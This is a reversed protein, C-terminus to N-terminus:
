PGVLAIAQVSAPRFRQELAKVACGLTAGSQSSDDVVVIRSGPRVQASHKVQVLSFYERVRLDIAKVAILRNQPAAALKRVAERYLALNTPRVNAEPARTRLVASVTCKELVDAVIGSGGLMRAFQRALAVALASTSPAPVIFDIAATGFHQLIRQRARRRLLALSRQDVRYGGRGKLAYMLPMGDQSHGRSNRRFVGIM